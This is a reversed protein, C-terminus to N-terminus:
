VRAGPRGYRRRRTEWAKRARESREADIARDYCVAHHELCYSSGARARAGCMSADATPDGAIFQCTHAYGLAESPDPMRLGGGQAMRSGEYANGQARKLLARRNTSMKRFGVIPMAPENQNELVSEPM